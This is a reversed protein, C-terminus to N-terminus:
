LPEKLSELAQFVGILDSLANLGDTAYHRWEPPFKGAEYYARVDELCGELRLRILEAHLKDKKAKAKAKVAKPKTTGSLSATLKIDTKHV